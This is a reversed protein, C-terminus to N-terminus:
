PRLTEAILPAVSLAGRLTLHDTDRFLVNGDKFWVYADEDEFVTNLSLTEAGHAEALQSLVKNAYGTLADVEDRRIFSQKFRAEAATKTGGLSVAQWLINEPFIRQQPVEHVLIVRVDAKRLASLMRDLGLEFSAKWGAQTQFQDGLTDSIMFGADEGALNGSAYLSWRAVLFVTDIDSGDIDRVYAQMTDFCERADQRGYTLYVGLLPPCAARVGRMLTFNRTRSLEAFAPLMAQAHSDGLLAVRSVPNDPQHLTCLKGPVPEVETCIDQPRWENFQASLDSLYESGIRDLREPVGKNVDGWFGFSALAIIGVASTTLLSARGALIARRRFPAEVFKWTLWALALSLLILLGMLAHSPESVSRYRALVFIPQHWLYASYSILGIAVMPRLSLLRATWGDTAAFLIILMTGVVPVLTYLSPFRVGTGYWFVCFLIMALGTLALIDNRPQSRGMLIAACISGGLLEWLRSPTFFFNELPYNRLGWEAIGLSIGSLGLFVWLHKRRSFAGLAWLVLPFLLYYQEEVALSWTHLLPRLQAAADFYGSHEIFHINSIFLAAFALSRAYDEFADPPIWYWAFPITCLLVFFLAPLIRRARRDYFGLLSYTGKEREDILITTILYGSIVFFVDVGVYGGSVGPFGAHFLIVPVVAVARLGDIEPRYKMQHRLGSVSLQITM